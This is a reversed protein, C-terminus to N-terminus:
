DTEDQGGWVSKVDEEFIEWAKKPSKARIITLRDFIRDHIVYIENEAYYYDHYDEDVGVKRFDNWKIAKNVLAMYIMKFADDISM